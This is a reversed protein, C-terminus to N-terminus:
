FSVLLNSGYVFGRTGLSHFPAVRWWLLRPFLSSQELSSCEPFVTGVLQLLVFITGEHRHTLPFAPSLRTWHTGPVTLLMQVYKTANEWLRSLAITPQILFTGMPEHIQVSLGLWTWPTTQSPLLVTLLYLRGLSTHGQPHVKLVYLRDRSETGSHLPTRWSGAVREGMDEGSRHVEGETVILWLM